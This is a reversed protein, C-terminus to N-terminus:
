AHFAEQRSARGENREQRAARFREMWPSLTAATVGSSQTWHHRKTGRGSQQESAQRAAHQSGNHILCSRAIRQHQSTNHQGDKRRFCWPRTRRWSTRQRKRRSWGSGATRWSHGRREASRAPAVSGDLAQRAGRGHQSQKEFPFASDVFLLQVRPIEQDNACVPHGLCRIRVAFLIAFPSEGLEDLSIPVQRYSFEEGRNLCACPLETPGGLCVVDRQDDRPAM